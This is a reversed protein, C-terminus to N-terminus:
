GNKQIGLKQHAICRSTSQPRYFNVIKPEKQNNWIGIKKDKEMKPHCFVLSNTIKKQDKLAILYDISRQTSKPHM